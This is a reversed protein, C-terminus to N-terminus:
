EWVALPQTLLAGMNAQHPVLYAIDDGTLGNREMIEASVDAMKVVAFKFVSPGEQFIYHM